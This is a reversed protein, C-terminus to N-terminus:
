GARFLDTGPAWRSQQLVREYKPTKNALRVLAARTREEAADISLVPRLKLLAAEISSWPQRKRFAVGHPNGDKPHKHSITITLEELESLLGPDTGVVESMWFMM